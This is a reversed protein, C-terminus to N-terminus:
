NKMRNWAVILDPTQFEYAAKPLVSWCGSDSRRLEPVFKPYQIFRWSVLQIEMFEPEHPQAVAQLQWYSIWGLHEYVGSIINVLTPM